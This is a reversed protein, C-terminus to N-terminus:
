LFVLYNNIKTLVKYVCFYFIEQLPKLLQTNKVQVKTYEGYEKGIM